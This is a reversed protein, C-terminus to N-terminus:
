GFQDTEPGTTHHYLPSMRIIKESSKFYSKTFTKFCQKNSHFKHLREKTDPILTTTYISKKPYNDSYTKSVKRQLQNVENRVWSKNNLYFQSKIRYPLNKNPKFKHYQIYFSSSTTKDIIPKKKQSNKRKGLPFHLLLNELHFIALNWKKIFNKEM